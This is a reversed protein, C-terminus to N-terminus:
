LAVKVRSIEGREKHYTVAQMQAFASYAHSAAYADKATVARLQEVQVGGIDQMKLHHLHGTFYFRYRTRGWMEPWQDAMHLVLREAKAKDGHHAAIMVAGFEHVFFDCPTKEVTVRPNDRYREFLAFMVALYSSENHNGRLVRVIVNDHKHLACETASALAEIAADLTRFHRSDTDLPHKSRPTANTNDDAHTLDGVDLIIATGSAPAGSVCMGMGDRIRALAIKTDYDEGTERDWALMGIHADAIPYVTLLDADSHRPAPIPKIPKIANIADCIEAAIDAPERQAPKLLVSYSTGDKSKTKAWALAPVLDTGVASMSDKIAPDVGAMGLRHTLTTRPIGLHRAAETKSGFREFAVVADQLQKETVRAV